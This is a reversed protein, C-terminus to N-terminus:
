LFCINLIVTPPVDKVLFVMDCTVYLSDLLDLRVQQSIYCTTQGKVEQNRGPQPKPTIWVVLDYNKEYSKFFVFM